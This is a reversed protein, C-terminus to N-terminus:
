QVYGRLLAREWEPRNRVKALQAVLTTDYPVAYHEAVWGGLKDAIVDRDTM